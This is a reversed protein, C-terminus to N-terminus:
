YQAALPEQVCQPMEGKSTSNNSNQFFVISLRTSHRAAALSKAGRWRGYIKLNRPMTLIIERWGAEGSAWIRAYLRQKPLAASSKRGTIM